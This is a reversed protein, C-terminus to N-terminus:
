LKAQLEKVAWEVDRAVYSDRRELDQLAPIARKDGLGGLALVANMRVDKHPDRLAAILPDVASADKISALAKVANERIGWDQDTRLVEVLPDVARPNKLAGLKIVARGRIFLDPSRLASALSEVDGQSAFRDIQEAALTRPAKPPGVSVPAPTGGYVPKKKGRLWDLIGM